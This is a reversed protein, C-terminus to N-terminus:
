QASPMGISDAARVTEKKVQKLDNWGAEVLLPIVQVLLLHSTSGSM